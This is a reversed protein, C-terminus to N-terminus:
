AIDDGDFADDSTMHSAVDAFATEHYVPAAQASDLADEMIDLQNDSLALEDTNSGGGWEVLESFNFEQDGIRLTEIMEGPEFDINLTGWLQPGGRFGADGTEIDNSKFWIHAHSGDSTISLDIDEMGFDEGLPGGRLELTDGNGAIIHDNGEGVTYIFTDNGEGGILTDD